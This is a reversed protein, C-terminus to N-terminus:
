ATFLAECGTGSLVADVRQRATDALSAHGDRLWQLCKGQYGFPAQRYTRTDIEVVVEGDDNRTPDSTTPGESGREIPDDSSCASALLTLILITFLIRRVIQHEPECPQDAVRVNSDPPQNGAAAHKTM